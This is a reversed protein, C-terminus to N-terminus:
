SCGEVYDVQPEMGIRWETIRGQADVEFIMRNLEADSLSVVLYQGDTYKHPLREVGPFAAVVDAVDMGVTIGGPAVVGPTDVDVRVLRGDEFMFGTGYGAAGRGPPLLYHCDDPSAPPPVAELPAGYAARVTAPDAGFPADRFGGFGIESPDYVPRPAEAAPGASAPPPPMAVAGDTPDEVPPGSPAAATGAPAEPGSCGAALAAALLTPLLRRYSNM